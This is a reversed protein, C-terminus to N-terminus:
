KEGLKMWSSDWGSAIIAIAIPKTEGVLRRHLHQGACQLQTLAAALVVLVFVLVLELVSVLGVVRVLVLKEEAMLVAIQM